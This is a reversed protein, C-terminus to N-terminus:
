RHNTEEVVSIGAEALLGRRDPEAVLQEDPVIADADM